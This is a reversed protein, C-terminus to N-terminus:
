GASLKRKYLKNIIRFEPAFSFAKYKFRWNADKAILWFLFKILLNPGTKPDLDGFLAAWSINNVFNRYSDSLWPAQFSHYEYSEWDEVRKPKKYGLLLCEELTQTGPLPTYVFFRVTSKPSIEKIKNRLKISKYVESKNEDPFGNIFTFDGLIGHKKIKDLSALVDGVNMRKNVSDLIRQSGSEVGFFVKRLGTEKLGNMLEETVEAFFSCRGFATWKFRFGRKKYEQIFQGIRKRDIFFNDDLFDIQKPNYRAILFELDSLVRDPSLQYFKMGHNKNFSAACCFKCAFPCGRSAIYPLTPLNRFMQDYLSYDFIPFENINASERTKNHYIEGNQRFSLGQISMLPKSDPNKFHDLLEELVLEGQGRIVYEIYTNKLCQEAELTPHYGGWIMPIKPSIKKIRSAMKFAERSGGTYLSFGIALCGNLANQLELDSYKNFLLEVAYGREKLYASLAMLSFSPSNDSNAYATQIANYLLIKNKIEGM